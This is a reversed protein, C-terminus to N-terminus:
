FFEVDDAASEVVEIQNRGNQKARYLAEDAYKYIEEGVYQQAPDLEMLGMSLTVCHFPPNGSHEIHKDQLHQRAQDARQRLEAPNPALYIVCFEEGGLRFVVDNASHFVDTLSQSIEWLVDDGAQHGYTDNYKKFNDADIMLYGIWCGEAHHKDIYPRLTQNYYRRNYLQTMEDTLMMQEVKKHDTVDQRVATYGTMNGLPDFNPSVHVKVWYYGGNKKLNKVEGSWPKGQKITNWLDDYLSKPMDPHRVVNHSKGILEKESYGSIECFAKSVSTINGKLDTTSTIVHEDVMQIYHMFDKVSM